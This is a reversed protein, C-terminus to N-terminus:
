SDLIVRIGSGSLSRIKFFPSNDALGGEHVHVGVCVYLFIETFYKCYFIQWSNETCNLLM